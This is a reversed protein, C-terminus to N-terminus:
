RVEMARDCAIRAPGGVLQDVEHQGDAVACLGLLTLDVDKYSVLRATREGEARFLYGSGNLLQATGYSDGYYAYHTIKQTSRPVTAM